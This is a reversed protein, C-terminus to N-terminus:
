RETTYRRTLTNLQTDLGPMGSERFVRTLRGRWSKVLSAGELAVDYVRWGADFTRLRFELASTSRRNTHHLSVRVRVHDCRLESGLIRLVHKRPDRIREVYRHQLLGRLTKTWAERRPEDLREWLGRLVLRAFFDVDLHASALQQAKRARLAM